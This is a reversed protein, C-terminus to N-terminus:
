RRGCREEWKSKFAAKEEESMNMFKEKWQPRGWHGRHGGGFRFGGFLLRCLILLGFAQWYTITSFHAIEPLIANWLAMILASIGFLGAIVFFFIFVGKKKWHARNSNYM